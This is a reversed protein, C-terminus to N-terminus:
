DEMLHSLKSVLEDVLKSIADDLSDAYRTTEEHIMAGMIVMLMHIRASLEDDHKCTMGALVVNDVLGICSEISKIADVSDKNKLPHDKILKNYADIMENVEKGYIDKNTVKIM